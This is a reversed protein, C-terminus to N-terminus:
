LICEEQRLQPQPKLCYNLDAGTVPPGLDGAGMLTETQQTRSPQLSPETTLLVPEEGSSGSKIGLVWM